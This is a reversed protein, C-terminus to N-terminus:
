YNSTESLYKRYREPDVRFAVIPSQTDEAAHDAAHSAETLLRDSPILRLSRSSIGIVPTTNVDNQRLITILDSHFDEAINLASDLNENTKIVAFGNSGYEFLMDNFSFYDHLLKVIASIYSDTFSIEPIKIVFLSLDQEASAARVLESELRTLLYSEKCLGTESSFLSGTEQVSEPEAEEEKLSDEEVTNSDEEQVAEIENSEPQEEVNQEPETQILPEEATDEEQPIDDQENASMEQDINETMEVPEINNEEDKQETNEDQPIVELETQKIFSNDTDDNQESDVQEMSKESLYKYLLLIAAFLTAILIIFFSLRARSFIALPSLLYTSVTLVATDDTAQLNTTFTKLLSSTTSFTDSPFQYLVRGKYELNVSAINAHVSTMRIFEPIFQQSEIPMKSLLDSTQYVMQDFSKASSSKGQKYDYISGFVFYFVALVFVVIIALSCISIKKSKM